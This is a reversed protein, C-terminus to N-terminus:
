KRSRASEAREGSTITTQGATLSSIKKNEQGNITCREVQKMWIPPPESSSTQSSGPIPAASASGSM